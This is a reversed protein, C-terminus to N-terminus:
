LFLEYGPQLFEWVFRSARSETAQSEARVDAMSACGQWGPVRAPTRVSGVSLFADSELARFGVGDRLM